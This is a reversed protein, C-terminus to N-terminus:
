SKKPVILFNKSSCISSVHSISNNDISIVFVDNKNTHNIMCWTIVYERIEEKINQTVLDAIISRDVGDISISFDSISNDQDSLYGLELSIWIDDHIAVENLPPPLISHVFEQFEQEDWGDNPDGYLGRNWSGSFEFILNKGDYKPVVDASTHEEIEGMQDYYWKELEYQLEPWDCTADLEIDCGKHWPSFSISKFTENKVVACLQEYLKSDVETIINEKKSM